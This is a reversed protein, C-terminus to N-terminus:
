KDDLDGFLEEIMWLKSLNLQIYGPGFVTDLKFKGRLTNSDFLHTIWIRYRVIDKIEVIRPM